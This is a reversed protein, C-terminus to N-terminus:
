IQSKLERRIAAADAAELGQEQAERIWSEVERSRPSRNGNQKRFLDMASTLAKAADHHNAVEKLIAVPTALKKLLDKIVTLGKPELEKVNVGFMSLLEGSATLDIIPDEVPAQSSGAGPESLEDLGTGDKSM